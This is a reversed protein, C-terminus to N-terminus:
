VLKYIITICPCFYLLFNSIITITASSSIQFTKSIQLLMKIFQQINNEGNIKDMMISSTEVTTNEMTNLLINQTNQELVDEPQWNGCLPFNRPVPLMDEHEGVKFILSM